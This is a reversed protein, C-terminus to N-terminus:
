VLQYDISGDVYNTIMPTKGSRGMEIIDDSTITYRLKMFYDIADKPGNGHVSNAMATFAGPGKKAIKILAKMGKKWLRLNANAERYMDRLEKDYSGVNKPMFDEEVDNSIYEVGGPSMHIVSLDSVVEKYTLKKM